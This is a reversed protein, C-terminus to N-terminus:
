AALCHAKGLAETQCRQRASGGRGGPVVRIKHGSGSNQNRDGLPEDRTAM